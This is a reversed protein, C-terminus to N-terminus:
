RVSPTAVALEYSSCDSSGKVGASKVPNLCNNLTDTARKELALSVTVHLLLLFFHSLISVLM